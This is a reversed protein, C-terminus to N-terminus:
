LTLEGGIARLAYEVKLPASAEVAAIAVWPIAYGAVDVTQGTAPLREASENLKVVLHLPVGDEFPMKLIGVGRIEIKGAINPATRLLPAPEGAELLIADDSILVAGRDILRLALDSKGSGSPGMLLVGQRNIAIATAHLLEPAIAATLNDIGRRM